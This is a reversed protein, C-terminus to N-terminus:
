ILDALGALVHRDDEGPVLGTPEGDGVDGWLLCVGSHRSRTGSVM